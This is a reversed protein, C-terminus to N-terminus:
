GVAAVAEKQAENMAAKMTEQGQLANIVQQIVIKRIIPTQDEFGRVIQPVATKAATDFVPALPVLKAEAATRQTSTGVGGGAGAVNLLKRQSAPTLLWTLFTDSAQQYKSDANVGLIALTEGTSTVPFPITVAGLNLKPNITKLNDATGGNDIEMAVKGAAFMTRYTSATAGQPIVKDNYLEQYSTLGKIVNASNLTLKKGDSWQGGFGYVYNFIDQWMGSEEPLTTRFALGYVGDKTQAKADAVFESYTTPPTPLLDKNYLLTYPGTTSAVGYRKGGVTTFKDPGPLLGLKKADIVKNLPSLLGAKAAQYFDPTDFRIVDPGTGAGLQTAITQAFTPFPVSAPTVHILPHSKNFDSIMAQLLPGSRPNGFLTDAYTINVLTTATSKPKASAAPTSASCGSLALGLAVWVRPHSRTSAGRAVPLLSM